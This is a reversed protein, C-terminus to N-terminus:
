KQNKWVVQQLILMSTHCFSFHLLFWAFAINAETFNWSSSKIDEKKILMFGLLIDLRWSM